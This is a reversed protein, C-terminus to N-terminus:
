RVAAAKDKMREEMELFARTAPDLARRADELARKALEKASRLPTTADDDDLPGLIDSPWQARADDNDNARNRNRFAAVLRPRLQALRDHYLHVDDLYVDYVCHACGSMCCEGDGPPAPKTPLEVGLYERARDQGPAPTLSAKTDVPASPPPPRPRYRDALNFSSPSLTYRQLQPSYRLYHRTM